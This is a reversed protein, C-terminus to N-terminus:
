KGLYYGLPGYAKHAKEVDLGALKIYRQLVILNSHGMLAQLAYIDNGLRYSWLAFTRRFRHPSCPHVGAKIGIKRLMEQIGKGKLPGIEQKTNHDFGVWMPADPSISSRYMLMKGIAQRTEPHLRAERYKRGKGKVMLLGSKMNVSGVQLQVLEELRLGSDLLSMIIAYNRAGLATKRDCARLLKDIDEREFPDPVREEHRPMKLKKPSVMEVGEENTLWNLFVKAARIYNAQSTDKLGKDQLHQRYLRLQAVTLMEMSTIKLGLLWAVFCGVTYRYYDLTKPTCNESERDLLFMQFYREISSFQRPVLITYSDSM